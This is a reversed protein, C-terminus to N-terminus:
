KLNYLVYRPPLNARLGERYSYVAALEGRTM